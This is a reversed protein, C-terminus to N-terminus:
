QMPNLKRFFRSFDPQNSEDYIKSQRAINARGPPSNRTWWNSVMFAAAPFRRNVMQAHSFRLDATFSRHKAV